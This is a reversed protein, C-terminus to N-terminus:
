FYGGAIGAFVTGSRGAARDEYAAGLIVHTGYRYPVTACGGISLEQAGVGFNHEPERAETFLYSARTWVHVNLWRVQARVRLEVPVEFAGPALPGYTSGGVGGQLAVTARGQVLGVGVLARGVYSLEGSGLVSGELQLSGLLRFQTWVLLAAARM